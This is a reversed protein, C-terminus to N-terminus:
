RTSKAALGGLFCDVIAVCKQKENLSTPDSKVGYLLRVREFGALMSLLLEAAFQADTKRLHGASMAQQLFKALAERANAAGKEHAIRALKPFRPAEAILARHMGVGRASLAKARFAQAFRLLTGRLDASPAGLAVTIDDISQRLVEAFLNEKSGFQNYLTQKAVGARAAIRDMSASYGDEIFARIAADCVLDRKQSNEAEVKLARPV